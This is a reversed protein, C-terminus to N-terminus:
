SQEEEGDGEVIDQQELFQNFEDIGMLDFRGSDIAAEIPDAQGM